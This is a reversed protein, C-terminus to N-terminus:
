SHADPELCSRQAQACGRDAKRIAPDPAVPTRSSGYAGKDINQLDGGGRIFVTSIAYFDPNTHWLLRLEHAM